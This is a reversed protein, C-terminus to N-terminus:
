RELDGRHGVKDSMKRLLLFRDGDLGRFGDRVDGVGAIFAADDAM